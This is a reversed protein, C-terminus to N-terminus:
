VVTFKYIKRCVQVQKELVSSFQKSEIKICIVEIYLKFRKTFM